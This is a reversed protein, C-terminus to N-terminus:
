RKCKKADSSMGGAEWKPNLATKPPRQKRGTGQPQERVATIRRGRWGMGGRGARSEVNRNDGAKGSRREESERSRTLGDGMRCSRAPITGRRDRWRPLPRSGNVTERNTNQEASGHGSHLAAPACAGFRSSGNCRREGPRMSPAAWGTANKPEPRCIYTRGGGEAARKPSLEGGHGRM